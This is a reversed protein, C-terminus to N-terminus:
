PAAVLRVTAKITENGRRVTLEATNDVGTDAIRLRLDEFDSVATGDYEIIIDRDRLGAKQAPGGAVVEIYIGYSVPLSYEEALLPTVAVGRIGLWPRIVRGHRVIGEIIPRAVNIPIAFGMGEVGTMNIKAQNIGIVQGASNVLAGGSNGSNIAADTQIVKYQYEDMTLTREVASIIGSTVTRQFQMGLPNGIAVALEGVVLTSSDGFAAVALNRYEAPLDMPNIRVVALDTSPDGGVLEARVQVTESFTVVLERAGDIVHYNTVILGSSDFVIGSGSSEEQYSGFISTVQARNIIGVVAPGVREAVQAVAGAAIINAYQDGVLPELMPLQYNPVYGYGPPYPLLKGYLFTPALYAGAVSGILAAILVLAVVAWTYNRRRRPRVFASQEYYESM